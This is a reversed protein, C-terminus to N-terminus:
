KRRNWPHSPDIPRGHQDCGKQQGTKEDSQKAGNHHDACLSQWNTSDWFLVRDGRHPIIHDVVTALGVKDLRACRVCFPHKLLYGARAARWKGGYGRAAATERTM